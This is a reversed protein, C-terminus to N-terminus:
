KVLMLKQTQTFEGADLKVFYVGSALNEANWNMTYNGNPKNGQVLTEIKRGDIDYISLNIKKDEPLLFSINTISNFPNPYAPNLTYYNPISKSSGEIIDVKSVLLNSFGELDSELNIINGTKEQYIRISPRNGDKLFGETQKSIDKGMVALTTLSSNYYSAGVLVDKNYALIIDGNEPKKNDILINNILYFAQNTSQYYDFLEPIESELQLSKSENCDLSWEFNSIDTKVNLWYGASNRLNNLNGAWVNETYFLGLGQGLIFNFTNSAYEEGGLADLTNCNEIGSYSILNNGYDM